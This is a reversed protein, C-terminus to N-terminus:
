LAESEADAWGEFYPPCIAMAEDMPGTLASSSVGDRHPHPGMM